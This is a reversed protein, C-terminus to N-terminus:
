DADFLCPVFDQVGRLIPLGMNATRNRHSPGRRIPLRVMQDHHRGM